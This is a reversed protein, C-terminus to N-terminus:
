AVETAETEGSESALVRASVQGLIPEFDASIKRFDAVLESSLKEEIAFTAKAYDHGNSSAAELGIRTVVDCFQLGEGGLRNLFYSRCNALSMVPLSFVLPLISDPRAIFLVRRQQCAQGKGKRASGFAAFPCTSCDGGPAGKGTCLDDSSCDPPTKEASEDPSKEWYVRIDRFGIIIGTMTQAFEDDIGPVQFICQGGSPMVLRDLNFMDMGAAGANKKIIAMRETINGKALAYDKAEVKVIATEKSM